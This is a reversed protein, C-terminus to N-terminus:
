GCPHSLTPLPHPHTLAFNGAAPVRNDNGLIFVEEWTSPPIHLRAAADGVTRDQCSILEDSPAEHPWRFESYRLYHHPSPASLWGSEVLKRAAERSFGVAGGRVFAGLNSITGFYDLGEPLLFRRWIMTDPDLKIIFDTVLALGLRLYRETWEGSPLHKLRPAECVAVRSRLQGSAPVGDGIFVIPAAPYFHQLAEALGEVLADDERFFNVVFALSM